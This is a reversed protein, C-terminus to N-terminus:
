KSYPYEKLFERMALPLDLSDILSVVPIKTMLHKNGANLHKHRYHQRLMQNVQLRCFHQLQPVSGKKRFPKSLFINSYVQGQTDIWVQEKTSRKHKNRKHDTNETYYEILEIVSDFFPINPILKAEADLRFRGYVYHLRVSTPGRATQVSLSFLFNANCSDRVIYTGLPTGQLLRKSDQWNINEYYWGSMQLAKTSRQLCLLDHDTGEGYLWSTQTSQNLTAFAHSTPRPFLVTPSKPSVARTPCQSPSANTFPNTPSFVASDDDLVLRMHNRFPNTSTVEEQSLLGGGSLHRSARDSDPFSWRNHGTENTEEEYDIQDLGFRELVVDLQEDKDEMEGKMKFCSQKSGIFSLGTPFFLNSFSLNETTTMTTVMM